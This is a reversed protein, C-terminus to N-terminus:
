LIWKLLMQGGQGLSKRGWASERMNSCLLNLSWCIVSSEVLFETGLKIIIIIYRSIRSRSMTQNNEPTPQHVLDENRSFHSCHRTASPPIRYFSNPFVEFFNTYYINPFKLQYGEENSHFCKLVSKAFFIKGKKWGKQVKSFCKSITSLLMSEMWTPIVVLSKSLSYFFCFCVWIRNPLSPLSSKFVTDVVSVWKSWQYEVRSADRWFVALWHTNKMM